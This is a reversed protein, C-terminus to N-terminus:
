MSIGLVMDGLQYCQLSIGVKLSSTRKKANLFEIQSQQQDAREMEPGDSVM